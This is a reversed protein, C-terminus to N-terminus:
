VHARGIKLGGVAFGGRTGKVPDNVLQFRISDSKLTFYNHTPTKNQDSLGGVAFGGRTSKGDTPQLINFQVEDPMITLYNAGEQKNQDSLGGVAFGGRTGKQEQEEAIFVRAGSEYVAFVIENNSNRVAFIPEEENRAGETVVEVTNENISIRNTSVWYNGDYVITQGITGGGQVANGAYLAYPVSLIQSVGMTNFTPEGTKKVDVQIFISENWPISSFVGISPDGNGVSLSIVGQGNSTAIHSEEYVVDGDTSTKRLIVKVDIDENALITGDSNRIAAQYSFMQPVQSFVQLVLAAIIIFTVLLQKM